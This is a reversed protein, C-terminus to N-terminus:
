PTLGRGISLLHVNTSLLITNVFIFLLFIYYLYLFFIYFFPIYFHAFFLCYLIFCFLIFDPAYCFLFIFYYFPLTPSLTYITLFRLPFLPSFSVLYPSPTVFNHM